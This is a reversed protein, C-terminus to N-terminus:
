ETPEDLIEPHRKEAEAMHLRFVKSRVLDCRTLLRGTLNLKAENDIDALLIDFPERWADDGYDDLGSLRQATTLLSDEDLPVMAAPDGLNSGVQNLLRVWRPRQPPARKVIPGASREEVKAM